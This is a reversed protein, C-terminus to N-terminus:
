LLKVHYLCVERVDQFLNMLFSKRSRNPGGMNGGRVALTSTCVCVCVCVCVFLLSVVGCSGSTMHTM